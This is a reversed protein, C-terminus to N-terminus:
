MKIDDSKDILAYGSGFGSWFGIVFGKGGFQGTTVKNGKTKKLSWWGVGGGM